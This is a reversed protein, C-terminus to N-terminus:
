AVGRRRRQARRSRRRNKRARREHMARSRAEQVIMRQRHAARRLERRVLYIDELTLGNETSINFQEAM